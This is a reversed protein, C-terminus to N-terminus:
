CRNRESSEVVGELSKKQLLRNREPHGEKGGGKPSPPLPIRNEEEEIFSRHSMGIELIIGASDMMNFVNTQLLFNSCLGNALISDRDVQLEM